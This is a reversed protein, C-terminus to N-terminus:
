RVAQKTTHKSIIEQTLTTARAVLPKAQADFQPFQRVVREIDRVIASLLNVATIYQEQAAFKAAEAIDGEAYQMQETAEELTLTIADTTAM